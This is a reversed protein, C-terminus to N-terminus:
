CYLSQVAAGAIAVFDTLDNAAPDITFSANMPGHGREEQADFGVAFCAAASALTWCSLLGDARARMTILVRRRPRSIYIRLDPIDTFDVTMGLPCRAVLEDILANGEPSLRSRFQREGLSADDDSEDTGKDANPDGGDAPLPTAVADNVRGGDSGGGSGQAEPLPHTDVVTDFVTAMMHEVEDPSIGDRETGAVTESNCIPRFHQILAKEAARLWHRKVWRSAAEGEVTERRLDWGRPLQHYVFSIRGLLDDENGPKLGDWHRAAFRAKNFTCSGGHQEILPSQGQDVPQALCAALDVAPGDLEAIIRDLQGRAFVIEPARLIHYTAHMRWRELVSGGFPRDAKGAYLGIYFLGGDLFVGYVGPGTLAEPEGRWQPRVAARLNMWAPKGPIAHTEHLAFLDEAKFFTM